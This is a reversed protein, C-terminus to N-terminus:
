HVHRGSRIKRGGGLRHNPDLAEIAQIISPSRFGFMESGDISDLPPSSLRHQQENVRQLVMEWCNQASVNSFSEWPSEEMTVKFLPGLLGADVVESIYSSIRTPDIVNLFKVRSKFGKPFIAHKNCWLKGFVLYGLNIPEVTAGFNTMPVGYSTSVEEEKAVTEAIDDMQLDVNLDFPDEKVKKEEGIVSDANPTVTSSGFSSKGNQTETQDQIPEIGMKSAWINLDDTEGELARVLSRLEDIDYRVLVFRDNGECSCLKDAHKLCAYEDPSCKCGSAALHLDYFCSFCERECNSDFDKEMKMFSFENELASIREEEMRVRAQIANTLTGNKGCFSKWRLNKRNEKGPTSLERLSKIGERAAGLLLKDHSLSTKRTEKSYLEVANQGHSLWDVPAVNVAEACNFGCNFGAHYARPFTLVYEGANQVVRYVPVGEEKLLSPSFQTVLGHLLDPQEKFLEPLHKRMVKELATAHSGPIGYWVKPEGFHHYNLSYLHHDEVHWCFSSFCMGVYLWPVLVGSIDCHEFSLVSGPLRPLNNLNWGSTIYQDMDGSGTLTEIGKPFGSGLVGSELDAGYYVEVEDTPQEVIRWYEGEIEEVSPTWKTDGVSDKKEFYSDRFYRAYKEFEELTFDSGSNFGFKEENEPSSVSESGSGTGTRRRSSGMRSNRRRKRKRSKPKKMPGRNQLLDVNQIRTPFKTNEWICKEKLRCTPTWTSPPIIRCIGFSEALPRIKEIYTLTDEFEELSPYFVPAEDIIPRQAEAPDWRAVVKRHRPSSPTELNTEKDPPHNQSMDEKGQSESPSVKSHEM